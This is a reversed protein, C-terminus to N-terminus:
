VWWTWPAIYELYKKGLPGNYNPQIKEVPSLALAFTVVGKRRLQPTKVPHLSM